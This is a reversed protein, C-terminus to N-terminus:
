TKIIKNPGKSIVIPEDKVITVKPTNDESVIDGCESERAEEDIDCAIM